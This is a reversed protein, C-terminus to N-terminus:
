HRSRANTAFWPVLQGFIGGRLWHRHEQRSKPRSYNSQYSAHKSYFSIFKNFSIFSNFLHYFHRAPIFFQFQFKFIIWSVPACHLEGVWSYTAWKQGAKPPSKEKRTFCQSYIIYISAHKFFDTFSPFDYSFPFKTPWTSRFNRNRKGLNLLFPSNVRVDGVWLLWSCVCVWGLQRM